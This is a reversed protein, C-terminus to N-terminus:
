IRIIQIGMMMHEGEHIPADRLTDRSFGRSDWEDFIGRAIAELVQKALSLCSRCNFSYHMCHKLMALLCRSRDEMAHMERLARFHGCAGDQVDDQCQGSLNEIWAELPLCECSVGPLVAGLFSTLSDLFPQRTSKSRHVGGWLCLSLLGFTSFSAKNGITESAIGQDGLAVVSRISPKFHDIMELGAIRLWAVWGKFSKAWKVVRFNAATMDVMPTLSPVVDLADWLILGNDTHRAAKVTAAAYGGETSRTVRPYFLEVMFALRAPSDYSQRSPSRDRAM